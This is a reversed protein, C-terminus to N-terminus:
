YAEEVGGGHQRYTKSVAKIVKSRVETWDQKREIKKWM